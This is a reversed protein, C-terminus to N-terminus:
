LLVQLASEMSPMSSRETGKSSFDVCISVGNTLNITELM